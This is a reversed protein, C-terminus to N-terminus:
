GVAVAVTFTIHSLRHKLQRYKQFESLPEFGNLQAACPSFIRQVKPQHIM